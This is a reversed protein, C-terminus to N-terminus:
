LGAADLAERLEGDGLTKTTRSLANAIVKDVLAPAGRTREFLEDRLSMPVRRAADGFRHLVFADLEDRRLGDLAARVHLRRKLPFLQPAEFASRLEPPGSLILSL